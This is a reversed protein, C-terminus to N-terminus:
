LPMSVGSPGGETGESLPPAALLHPNLSLSLPHLSIYPIGGVAAEAPAAHLFPFPAHMMSNDTKAQQGGGADAERPKPLAAAPQPVTFLTLSLMTQILASPQDCSDTTAPKGPINTVCVTPEDPLSRVPQDQMNTVHCQVLDEMLETENQPVENLDLIMRNSSAARQSVPQHDMTTDHSGMKRSTVGSDGDEGVEAMRSPVQSIHPRRWSSNSGECCSEEEKKERMLETWSKKM